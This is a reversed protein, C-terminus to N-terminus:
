ELFYLSNLFITQGNGTKNLRIDRISWGMPDISSHCQMCSSSNRFPFPNTGSSDVLAIADKPQVVPLDRCLIEKFVQKSWVRSSKIGGDDVEGISRIRNIMIYPQTGIIGSGFSKTINIPNMATPRAWNADYLLKDVLTLNKLPEIGIIKGMQIHLGNQTGTPDLVQSLNAEVQSAPKGVWIKVDKSGWRDPRNQTTPWISFTNYGKSRIAQLSESATIADSYKGDQHFVARTLHLAGEAGDHLFHNINEGGPILANFVNVDDFWSTHFQNFNELVKLSESNQVILEGSNKDLIASDFVQMCADVYSLQGSRVQILRADNDAPRNRTLHAYCRYFLAENSLNAAHLEVFSYFGTLLVIKSFTISSKKM